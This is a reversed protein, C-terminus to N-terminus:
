VMYGTGKPIGGLSVRKSSDCILANLWLELAILFATGM